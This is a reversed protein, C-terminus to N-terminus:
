RVSLVPSLDTQCDASEPGTLKLAHICTASACATQRLHDQDTDGTVYAAAKCLVLAMSPFKGEKEESGLDARLLTKCLTFSSYSCM